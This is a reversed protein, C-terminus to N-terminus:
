PLPIEFRTNFLQCTGDTLYCTQGRLTGTVRTAGPEVAVVQSLRAEGEFYTYVTDFAKDKGPRTGTSQLSDQLKVPQNADLRLRTPNPGLEGSFDSGYVIYGDRIRGRFQLQYLREGNASQVAVAQTSWTVAESSAQVQAGAHVAFALLATAVALPRINM